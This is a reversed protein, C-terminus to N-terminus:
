SAIFTNKSNEPKSLIEIFCKVLNPDFQTGANERLEVLASDPSLPNRYPRSSTMAQFADAISIIRAFLPINSGALGNPYGKGDWREHHSLVCAIIESDDIIHKIINYGLVTHDKVAEFEQNTLAEPKNIIEDPVGIKGCDHLVAGIRLRFKDEEPIQLAEAIQLTYKSVLESHRGTYKDKADIASALSIVSNLLMKRKIDNEDSHESMSDNEPNFICYQNRGRQKSYYMAKDAKEVLDRAGNAHQPYLAIGISLTVPFYVAYQQLKQCSAITKNLDEALKMAGVVDCDELLVAFEEGGYRFCAGKDKVIQQIIEATEKLVTDGIVHGYMDNITKFYDLDCFLLILKSSKQSAPMFYEYFYRHNYLNTLEDRNSVVRFHDATEQKEKIIIYFALVIFFLGIGYAADEYFNDIWKPLNILEDLLDVFFGSLYLAWGFTLASNKFEIVIFLGILGIVVNIGSSFIDEFEVNLLSGAIIVGLVPILALLFLQYKGSHNGTKRYISM